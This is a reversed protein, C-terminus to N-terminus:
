LLPFVSLPPARAPTQAGQYSLVLMVGPAEVLTQPADTPRVRLQDASLNALAENILECVECDQDAGHEIHVAIPATTVAILAVALAGIWTRFM